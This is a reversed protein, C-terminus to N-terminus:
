PLRVVEGDKTTLVYESGDFVLQENPGIPCKGRPTPIVLRPTICGPRRVLERYIRQSETISLRHKPLTGNYFPHV